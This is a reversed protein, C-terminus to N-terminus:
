SLSRLPNIYLISIPNEKKASVIDFLPLMASETKGSGTPAIILVNKGAFIEPVGLKQPLTPGAFGKKKILEQLRPSFLEFVMPILFFYNPSNLFATTLLCITISHRTIM